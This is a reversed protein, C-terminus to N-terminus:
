EGFKEKLRKFEKREREEGRKKDLVKRRKWYELYAQNYKTKDYMVFDSLFDFEYDEPNIIESEEFQIITDDTFIIYGSNYFTYDSIVEKVVKGKAEEKTIPKPLNYKKIIDQLIEDM